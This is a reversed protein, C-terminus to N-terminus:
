KIRKKPSLHLHLLSFWLLGGAILFLGLYQYVDPTEKLIFISGFFSIAAALPILASAKSLPIRQLAQYWLTVDLARFIIGFFVIAILTHINTLQLLSTPNVLIAVLTLLIGGFFLRSGSIVMANTKTKMAKM